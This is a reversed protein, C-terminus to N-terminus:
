KGDPVVKRMQEMLLNAQDAIQKMHLLSVPGIGRVMAKVLEFLDRDIAKVAEKM